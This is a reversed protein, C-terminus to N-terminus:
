YKLIYRQSQFLKLFGAMTLSKKLWYALTDELGGNSNYFMFIVFIVNKGCLMLLLLFLLLLLIENGRWAHWVLYEQKNQYNFFDGNM